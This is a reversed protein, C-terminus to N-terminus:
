PKLKKYVNIAFLAIQFTAWATYKLVLYSFFLSTAGVPVALLRLIFPVNAVQYGIFSMINTLATATNPAFANIILYFPAFVINALVSIIHFVFKVLIDLM